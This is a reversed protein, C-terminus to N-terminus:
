RGQGPKGGAAQRGPRANFRIANRLKYDLPMGEASGSGYLAEQAAGVGDVVGGGPHRHISVPQRTTSGPV